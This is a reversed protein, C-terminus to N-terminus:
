RRAAKLAHAILAEPTDGAAGALLADAEQPRSASGSWATAPLARPDDRARSSSRTTPPPRPASRRACSSSSGSPRASASGPSPRAARPTAAAAVAGVCSARRAARSCPWRWRRGSGQVGLLLLFLDREEETAFGYLPLADDRVISTPTLLSRARRCAPVHRLTEASVALRYGVGGCSVVVHDGRRVAVEGPVLAIMRRGRWRPRWRRATPTASRWRSRTPRTTPSRAARHTRAPSSWASSRIRPPAAPAASRPRSRSRPTPRAASPRQGAALM